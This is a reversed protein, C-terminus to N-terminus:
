TLTDPLVTTMPAGESSLPAVPTLPFSASSLVGSLPAVYMKTRLVLLQLWCAYMLAELVPKPSRNPKETPMEPLVITTPESRSSLSEVPTM